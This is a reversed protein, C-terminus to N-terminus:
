SQSNGNAAADCPRLCLSQGVGQAQGWPQRALIPTTSLAGASVRGIDHRHQFAASIASDSPPRQVLASLLGAVLYLEGGNGGAEQCEVGTLRLDGSGLVM